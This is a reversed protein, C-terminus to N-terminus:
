CWHRCMNDNNNNNNNSVVVVGGSEPTGAELISNQMEFFTTKQRRGRPGTSPSEDSPLRSTHTHTHARWWYFHCFFPLFAIATVKWGTHGEARRLQSVTSNNWHNIPKNVSLEGPAATNCGGVCVYVCWVCVCVHVADTKRCLQWSIPQLHTASDCPAIPARAGTLRGRRMREKDNM